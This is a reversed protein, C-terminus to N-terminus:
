TTIFFEGAQKGEWRRDFPEGELDLAKLREMLWEQAEDAPIYYYFQKDRLVSPEVRICVKDAEPHQNLVAEKYMMHDPEQAEDSPTQSEDTTNDTVADDFTDMRNVVPASEDSLAAEHADPATPGMAVACGVLMALALLMVVFAAWGKKKFTMIQILREKLNRKETTFSM